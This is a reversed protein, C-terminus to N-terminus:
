HCDGNAIVLSKQGCGFNVETLTIIEDFCYNSTLETLAKALASRDAPIERILQMATDADVEIAAQRLSAIWETPMLELNPLNLSPRESKPSTPEAEYLYQIGLQEAMKDFIEEEKFPKRVLADCGVELIKGREEEFATATLAIIITKNGQPNAKIQKTAEYGDMMPMRMDMWILHPQWQQWIQIAERGNTATRTELGVTTLFNVLLERNAEKDDVVLIRYQPQEPAIGIVRRKAQSAEVQSSEALKVKITLSFTSGKGATSTFTIDGKMLRAFQRSIALGLGTGDESQTGINTQVFPEFIREQEADAIGKGTDKVTFKLQQRNSDTNDQPHKVVTLVVGGVQTFKIANGLLNILIQRLKGEDSLIYRPVDDAVKFQLSLNKATARIQFMEQLTELLLLLDFATTTLTTRGAEIKSMELVDNLLNLLHEGSRNIIGLSNRQQSSLNTDREMLQSFGLIANLPTRLEHSMNALFESKARNAIEAQNKATALAQSHQKERELLQAQAIAIKVQTAVEQLLENEEQTWQRIRNDERLNRYLVLVSNFQQQYSIPVVMLSKVQLQRFLTQNNSLSSEEYVDNCSLLHREGSLQPFEIKKGLLSQNGEKIYEAAVRAKTQPAAYSLIQCRDSGFTSGVINVTTQFIQEIDLSQRIEQTIQELLLAQKLQRELDIGVSVTANGQQYKRAAVLYYKKAEESDMEVVQSAFNDSSALFQRMFQALKSGGQFFGVEKGVFADPSLNWTEAQYRNVGLYQGRSDIWSISGPIADLVAELQEKAEALERERTKITQVMQCFVRVFRGLEDQRMGVESLSEPNFTHNEVAAAAATVKEVQELYISMQQNKAYLQNELDTSYETVTDVLIEWDAKEGQLSQVQQKLAEIQAQLEQNSASESM